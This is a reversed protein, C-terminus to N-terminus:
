GADEACPQRLDTRERISAARRTYWACGHIRVAISDRSVGVGPASAYMSERAASNMSPPMAISRVWWAMCTTPGRIQPKVASTNM